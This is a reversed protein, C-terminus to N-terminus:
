FNVSFGDLWLKREEKSGNLDSHGTRVIMLCMDSTEADCWFDLFHQM